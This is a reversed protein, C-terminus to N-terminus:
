IHNVECSKHQVSVSCSDDNPEICPGRQTIVREACTCRVVASKRCSKLNEVAEAGHLDAFYVGDETGTGGHVFRWRARATPNPVVVWQSSKECLAPDLSKLLEVFDDLSM